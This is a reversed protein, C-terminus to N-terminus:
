FGSSIYPSLTLLMFEVLVLLFCPSYSLQELLTLLLAGCTTGTMSSKAVFRTILPPVSRITIVVFLMHKTIHM